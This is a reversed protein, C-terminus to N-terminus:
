HANLIPNWEVQADVLKPSMQDIPTSWGVLRPEYAKIITDATALADLGEAEADLIDVKWGRDRLYRALLGAWVPPEVAARQSLTGYVDLRSPANVLLVDM